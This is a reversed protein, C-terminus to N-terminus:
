ALTAWNLFTEISVSSWLNQRLVSDHQNSVGGAPSHARPACVWTLYCTPSIISFAYVAAFHIFVDRSGRGAFGSGVVSFGMSELAVTYEWVQGSSVSSVWDTSVVFRIPYCSCVLACVCLCVCLKGTIWAHLQELRINIKTVHHVSCM